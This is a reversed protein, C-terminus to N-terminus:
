NLITSTVLRPNLERNMMILKKFSSKKNNGQNNGTNNHMIPKDVYIM